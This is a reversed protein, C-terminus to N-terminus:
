CLTGFGPSAPCVELRLEEVTLQLEQVRGDERAHLVEAQLEQICRERTLRELQVALCEQQAAMNTQELEANAARLARLEEERRACCQGVRLQGMQGM